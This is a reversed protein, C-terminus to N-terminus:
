RTSIPVRVVKGDARVTRAGDLAAFHTTTGRRLKSFRAAVRTQTEALQKLSERLAVSNRAALENGVAYASQARSFSGASSSVVDGLGAGGNDLLLQQVRPVDLTVTPDQTSFSLRAQAWDEGTTQSVLALQALSIA